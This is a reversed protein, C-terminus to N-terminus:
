KQKGSKNAALIEDRHDNYYATIDAITGGRSFFVEKLAGEKFNFMGSVIAGILEDTANSAYTIATAVMIKESISFIDPGFIVSPELRVGNKYPIRHYVGNDYDWETVTGHRKGNVYTAECLIRGNNQSGNKERITVKGNYVPGTATNKIDNCELYCAKNHYTVSVTNAPLQKRPGPQLRAWFFQL